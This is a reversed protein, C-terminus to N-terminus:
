ILIQPANLKMSQLKFHRIGNPAHTTSLNVTSTSIEEPTRSDFIIIFIKNKASKNYFYFFYLKEFYLQLSYFVFLSTWICICKIFLIVNNASYLFLCGLCYVAFICNCITLECALYFVKYLGIVNGCRAFLKKLQSDTLAKCAPRSASFRVFLRSSMITSCRCDLSLM